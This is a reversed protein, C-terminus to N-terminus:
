GDLAVLDFFRKIQEFKSGVLLGNVKVQCARHAVANDSYVVDFATGIGHSLGCYVCHTVGFGVKNEAM